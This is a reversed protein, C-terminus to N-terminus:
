TLIKREPLSIALALLPGCNPQDRPFALDGMSLTSGTSAKVASPKAGKGGMHM